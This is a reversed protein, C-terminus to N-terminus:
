FPNYDDSSLSAVDTEDDADEDSSLFHNHTQTEPETDTETETELLEPMLTDDLFIDSDAKKKRYVYYRTHPDTAATYMQTFNWSEQRDKRMRWFNAHPIGGIDNFSVWDYIHLYDDKPNLPNYYKFELNKDTKFFKEYFSDISPIGGFKNSVDMLTELHHLIIRRNDGSNLYDKYGKVYGTRLFGMFLNWDSSKINLDKLISIDNNEDKMLNCNIDNFKKLKFLRKFVKAGELLKSTRLFDFDVVVKFGHMTNIIIIYEDEIDEIINEVIDALCEQVEM